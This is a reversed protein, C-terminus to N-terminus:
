RYEILSKVTGDRAIYQRWGGWKTVAQAESEATTRM